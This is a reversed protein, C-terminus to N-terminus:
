TNKYELKKLMALVNKHECFENRAHLIAFSLDINSLAVDRKSM